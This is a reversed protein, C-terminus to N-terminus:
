NACCLRTDSRGPRASRTSGPKTFGHPMTADGVLGNQIESLLDPKDVSYLPLPPVIARVTASGAGPPLVPPAPVPTTNLPVDENLTAAPLGAENMTAVSSPVIM